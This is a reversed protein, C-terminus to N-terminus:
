QKQHNYRNLIDNEMQQKLEQSLPNTAVFNRFYEQVTLYDPILSKLISDASDLGVNGCIVTPHYNDFHSNVRNLTIDNDNDIYKYPFVTEILSNHVSIEKESATDKWFLILFKISAFKILFADNLIKFNCEQGNDKKIKGIHTFAGIDILGNPYFKLNNTIFLPRYFNNEEGVLNMNSHLGAFISFQHEINSSYLIYQINTHTTYDVKMYREYNYIIKLLWRSLQNYDFSITYSEDMKFQRIFNDKILNVGYADLSGLIHNNCTSCVDKLTIGINDKYAKHPAFTIDQEPFLKLLGAPIIHEKTVNSHLTNGCFSCKKM